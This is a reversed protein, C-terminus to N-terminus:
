SIPLIVIFQSGKGEDSQIRLRGRHRNVIHKVIALGLGTGGLERSRHGDVRYFRETLRPLHHSKIGDGEDSVTALVAPCRLSPEFGVCALTITVVGGKKGYKISNEILNSFVQQLQDSDGTLHIPETPMDFAVRVDSAEALPRLAVIVAEIVSAIDLQVDPRIREQSEVRSLSLLDRVLRNMRAAEQDMIGLFRERAVSDNKASGRLTEIFGALATLPTRLEHSVNAVFDRRMQGAEEFSSIDQFTLLVGQGETMEVPRCVVEFITEHTTTTKVFKARTERTNERCREVCDLLIPQRLATIYHRGELGAGFLEVALPNIVRAIHQTDILVAPLPIGALLAASNQDTM